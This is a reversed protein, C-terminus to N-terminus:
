GGQKKSQRITKIARDIGRRFQTTNFCSVTMLKGRMVAGEQQSRSTRQADQRVADDEGRDGEPRSAQCNEAWVEAHLGRDQTAQGQRALRENGDCCDDCRALGGAAGRDPGAQRLRAM